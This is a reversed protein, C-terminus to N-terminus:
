NNETCTCPTFTIIFHTYGQEKNARFKKEIEPINIYNIETYRDLNYLQDFANQCNDMPGKFLINKSSNVRKKYAYKGRILELSLKAVPEPTEM